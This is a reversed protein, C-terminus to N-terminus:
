PKEPAHTTRVYRGDFTSQWTAGGDSSAEFLQRVTDASIRSLTLKQLVRTGNSSLSWGTFRMAHESFHGEYDLSQGNGATWVQRWAKRNSDWFNFSKGTSGNAATWEELLMCHELQATITNRGIAPVSAPTGWPTVVWDGLWFDFQHAETGRRCPFTTDELKQVISRYRADDRITALDSQSAILQLSVGAAIARELHVVASDAEGLRAFSRTLRFEAQPSQFGALSARRFEPIADRFERQQFLAVGLRFRARINTTDQVAIARYERSAAPWDARAFASDAATTSQAAVVTPLLPCLAVLIAQAGLRCRVLRNALM